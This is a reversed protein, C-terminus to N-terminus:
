SYPESPQGLISCSAFIVIGDLTEIQLGKGPRAGAKPSLGTDSGMARRINDKIQLKKAWEDRM